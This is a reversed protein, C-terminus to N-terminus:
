EEALPAAAGLTHRLRAVWVRPAPGRGDDAAHAPDHARVFAPQEGCGAALAARPLSGAAWGRIGYGPRCVGRPRHRVEAVADPARARLAVLRPRSYGAPAPGLELREM